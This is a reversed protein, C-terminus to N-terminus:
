AQVARFSRVWSGPASPNPVLSSGGGTRTAPACPSEVRWPRVPLGHTVSRWESAACGRRRRVVARPARAPTCPCPQQTSRAASAASAAASDCSCMLTVFGVACTSQINPWECVIRQSYWTWSVRKVRMVCEHRVCGVRVCPAGPSNVMRGGSVPWCRRGRRRVFWRRRWSVRLPALKLLRCRRVVCRTGARAGRAVTTALRRQDRSPPSMSLAGRHRHRPKTTPQRQRAPRRSSRRRSRGRGRRPCGSTPDLSSTRM